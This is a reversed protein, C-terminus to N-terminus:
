VLWGRASAMRILAPRDALGLKNMGRARHSDVTKRSLGIQDAIDSNSYGKAWLRLVYEERETLAKGETPGPMEGEASRSLGRDVLSGGALTVRIVRMLAPGSISKAVVSSFGIRMCFSVLEKTPQSAVAILALSPCAALMQPVLDELNPTFQPDILLVDWDPDRLREIDTASLADGHTGTDDFTSAALDLVASAFIPSQDAVGIRIPSVSRM